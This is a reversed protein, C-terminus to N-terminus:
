RLLLSYTYVGIESWSKTLNDAEYRESITNGILYYYVAAYM